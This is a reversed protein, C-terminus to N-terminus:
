KQNLLAIRESHSLGELKEYEDFIDNYGDLRRWEAHGDVNSIPNNEERKDFAAKIEDREKKTLYNFRAVYHYIHCYPYPIKKRRIHIFALSVFYIIVSENDKAKQIQSFYIDNAENTEVLLVWAIIVFINYINIKLMLINTAFDITFAIFWLNWIICLLNLLFAIGLLLTNTGWECYYKRNNGETCFCRAWNEEQCMKYFCVGLCGYTVTISIITTLITFITLM